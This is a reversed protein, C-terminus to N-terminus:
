PSSALNPPPFVMRSPIACDALAVLSSPTSSKTIVLAIIISWQPITFPSMPILSPFTTATPLAPFGSVISPIVSFMIIPAEVSTCEPAPNITVAPPISVCM